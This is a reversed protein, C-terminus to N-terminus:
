SALKRGLAVALIITAGDVMMQESVYLGMIIPGNNITGILHCRGEAITRCYKQNRQTRGRM